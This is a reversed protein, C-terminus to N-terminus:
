SEKTINVKYGIKELSKKHDEICKLYAASYVDGLLSCFERLDDDTLFYLVRDILKENKGYNEKLLESIYKKIYISRNNKLIDLM